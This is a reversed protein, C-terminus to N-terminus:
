RGTIRLSAVADARGWPAGADSAGPEAARVSPLMWESVEGRAEARRNGVTLGMEDACVWV